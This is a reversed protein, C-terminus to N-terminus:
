LMILVLSLAGVIISSALGAAFPGFGVKKMRSFDTMLGTAAMAVVILFKSAAKAQALLAAYGASGGLVPDALTRAVSAALFWLVFFPFSQLAQRCDFRSSKRRSHFAGLIFVLPALLTTRVLKVVASTKGAAESYSFGAALVQATEHVATGAWTGFQADTMALAKGIAPYAFIALVGFMTITGIAYSVDSDDAGIAPAAAVIATAGCIATGVGVLTSLGERLGLLRGVYITLLIGATVVFVIVGLTGTGTGFVARLQLDFGLLIIALKLIRKVSFSLGPGLVARPGLLARLAMGTIIAIVVASVPKQGGIVIAACVMNAIQAILAAAALGPLL